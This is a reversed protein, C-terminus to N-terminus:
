KEQAAAPIGMQGLREKIRLERDQNVLEMADHHGAASPSPVIALDRIRFRITLFMSTSAAADIRVFVRKQSNVIREWGSNIPQTTTAPLRFPVGKFVADDSMKNAALGTYDLAAPAKIGSVVISGTGGDGNVISDIAYEAWQCSTIPCQVFYDGTGGGITLAPLETYGESHCM